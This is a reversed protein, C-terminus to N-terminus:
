QMKSWYLSFDRNQNYVTGTSSWGTVEETAAALGLAQKIRVTLQVDVAQAECEIGEVACKAKDHDLHNASTDHTSPECGAGAAVYSSSIQKVSTMSRGTAPMLHDSPPHVEQVKKADMASATISRPKPVEAALAAAAAASADTKRLQPSMGPCRLLSKQISGKKQISGETSTQEMNRVLKIASTDISGLTAAAKAARGIPPASKPSTEDAGLVPMSSEANLCSVVATDNSASSPAGAAAAPASQDSARSPRCEQQLPQGRYEDAAPVGQKSCSHQSLGAPCSCYSIKLRLLPESGAAQSPPQLQRDVTSVLPLLISESYQMGLLREQQISVKQTDTGKQLERGPTSSLPQAKQDQGLQRSKGSLGKSTRSSSMKDPGSPADKGLNLGDLSLIHDAEPLKSSPRLKDRPSSTTRHLKDSPEERPPVLALLRALPLRGVACLTDQLGDWEDWIQAVVAWILLM